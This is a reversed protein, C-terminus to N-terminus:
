PDLRARYLIEFPLIYVRLPAPSGPDPFAEFTYLGVRAWMVFNSGTSLEPHNTRLENDVADLIAHARDRAETAVDEGAGARMVRIQSDLTPEEDISNPGLEAATRPGSRGSYGVLITDTISYDADIWTTFVKPSPDLADLDSRADLGTKLLDLFEPISSATM